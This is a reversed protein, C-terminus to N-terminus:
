NVVDQLVMWDDRTLMEMWDCSKLRHLREIQLWCGASLSRLRDFVADRMGEVIM